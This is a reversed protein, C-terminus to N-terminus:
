MQNKPIAIFILSSFITLVYYYIASRRKSKRSFTPGPISGDVGRATHRIEIDNSSHRISIIQVLCVWLYSEKAM